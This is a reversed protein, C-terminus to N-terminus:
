MGKPACMHVYFNWDPNRSATPTDCYLTVEELIMQLFPRQAAVMADLVSQSRLGEEVVTTLIVHYISLVALSLGYTAVQVTESANQLKSLLDACSDEAEMLDSKKSCAGCVQSSSLTISTMQWSIM